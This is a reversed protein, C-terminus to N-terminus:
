TNRVQLSAENPTNLGLWVHPLMTRAEATTKGELQGLKRERLDSDTQIIVNDQNNHIKHVINITQLTRDLDSTYFADFKEGVLRAALKEAQNIGKTNLPPGPFMQGQLRSEVNFDTEGHRVLILKCAQETLKALAKRQRDVEQAARRNTRSQFM